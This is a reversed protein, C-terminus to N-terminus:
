ILNVGPILKFVVTLIGLVLGTVAMGKGAGALRNARGMGVGGFIIALVGMVLGIFIGALPILSLVAGVIGLTGGTTAMGNSRPQGGGAVPYGPATGYATAGAFQPQAYPAPAWGPQGYSAQGYADQGYGPQDQVPQGYPVPATSQPPPALVPATPSGLPQAHPELRIFEGWAQQWGEDTGPFAAVPEEQERGVLWIGYGYESRGLLHHQGGHTFQRV